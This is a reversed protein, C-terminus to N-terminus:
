RYEIDEADRFALEFKRKQKGSHGEPTMVEEDNNKEIQIESMWKNTTVLVIFIAAVLTIGVSYLFLGFRDFFSAQYIILIQVFLSNWAYAVTLALGQMCIRATQSWFLFSPLIAMLHPHIRQLSLHVLLSSYFKEHQQGKTPPMEIDSRLNSNSKKQYDEQALTSLYLKYQVYSIIMTAIITALLAYASLVGIDQPDTLYNLTLHITYPLSNVALLFLTNETLNIIEVRVSGLFPIREYTEEEPNHDLLQSDPRRSELWKM